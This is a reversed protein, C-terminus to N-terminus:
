RAKTARGKLPPRGTFRAPSPGQPLAARLIALVGALNQLVDNNWFRIVRYGAAELWNTRAEDASICTAHQGGDLEVILREAECVFDVVYIGIPHQRRFRFSELGRNRLRSWLLTEAKTM